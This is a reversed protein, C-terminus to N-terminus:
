LFSLHECLGDIESATLPEVEGGCSAVDMVDHKEGTLQQQLLRLGALLAGITRKNETANAMRAAWKPADKLSITESPPPWGKGELLHKPIGMAEGIRKNLIELEDAIKPMTEDFFKSGRSTNGFGQMDNGGKESEDNEGM